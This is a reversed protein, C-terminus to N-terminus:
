AAAERSSDVVASASPKRPPPAELESPIRHEIKGIIPRNHAIAPNSVFKNEATLRDILRVESPLLVQHPLSVFNRFTWLLRAREVLNPELYRPGLPTELEVVGRTIKEIWM